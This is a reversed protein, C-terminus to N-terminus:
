PNISITWKKFCIELDRGNHGLSYHLAKFPISQPNTSPFPPYMHSLFLRNNDFIRNLIHNDDCKSMKNTARTSEDLVCEFFIFVTPLTQISLIHWRLSEKMNVGVHNQLDFQLNTGLELSCLPQSERKLSWDRVVITNAEQNENKSFPNHVSEYPFPPWIRSM